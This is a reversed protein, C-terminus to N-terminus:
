SEAAWSEYLLGIVGAVEVALVSAKGDETDDGVGLAQRNHVLDPLQGDDIRAAFEIGQGGLIVGGASRNGVGIVDHNARDFLGTAFRKWRLERLGDDLGTVRWVDGHISCVWAAGDPTFDVGSLFMLAKWPNDYPVTLTDIALIDTDFGRQGATRLEPLWRPPGPQTLVALDEPSAVLEDFDALRAFANTAGSWLAVKVRQSTTHPPFAAVLQGAEDALSADAGALAVIFVNSGKEVIARARGPSGNLSVKGAAPALVVRTTQSSPGLELSRMFSTTAGLKELWPSDFVRMDSVIYELVVRNGHLHLGSYRNTTGIWGPRAAM